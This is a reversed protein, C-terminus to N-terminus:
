KVETEDRSFRDRKYAKSIEYFKTAEKKLDDASPISQTESGKNSVQTTDTDNNNSNDTQENM